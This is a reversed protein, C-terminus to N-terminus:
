ASAALENGMVYRHLKAIAYGVHLDAIGDEAALARNMLHNCTDEVFTMMETIRQVTMPQLGALEQDLLAPVFEACQM